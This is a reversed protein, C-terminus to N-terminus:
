YSELDSPLHSPDNIYVSAAEMEVAPTVEPVYDDNVADSSLCVLNDVRVRRGSKVTFPVSLAYFGPGKQVPLKLSARYVLIRLLKRVSLTGTDPATNTLIFPARTLM